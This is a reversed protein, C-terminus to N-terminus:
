LLVEPPGRRVLRLTFQWTLAPQSEPALCWPWWGVVVLWGGHWWPVLAGEERCFLYRAALEFSCAGRQHRQRVFV